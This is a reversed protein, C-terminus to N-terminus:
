KRGAAALIDPITGCMTTIPTTQAVGSHATTVKWVNEIQAASLGNKNQDLVFTAWNGCVQANLGTGFVPEAVVANFISGPVILVFGVMVAIVLLIASNAFTFFLTWREAARPTYTSTNHSM